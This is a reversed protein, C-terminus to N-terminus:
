GKRSTRVRSQGRTTVSRQSVLLNEGIDTVRQRKLLEM